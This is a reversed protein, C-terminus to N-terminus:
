KVAGSPAPAPRRLLLSLPSAALMVIMLLKFQGVLAVMAAQGTLQDNLAALSIGPLSAIRRPTLNGALALHMMQTNDYFFMQVLAVGITGGYLRSLNFLAGGEGRLRPELTSFATRSLAPM